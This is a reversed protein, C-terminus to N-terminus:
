TMIYIMIFIFGPLPYILLLIDIDCALIAVPIIIWSVMVASASPFNSTQMDYTISINLMYISLNFILPVFHYDYYIIQANRFPFPNM